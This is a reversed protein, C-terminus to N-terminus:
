RDNPKRDEKENEKECNMMMTRPAEILAKDEEGEEKKKKIRERHQQKRFSKSAFFRSSM